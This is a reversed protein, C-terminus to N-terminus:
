PVAKDGAISGFTGPTVVGVESTASVVVDVDLVDVDVVVVVVVVNGGTGIESAKVPSM